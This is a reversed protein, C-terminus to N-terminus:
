RILTVTGKKSVKKGSLGDMELFYVYVGTPQPNGNLTGDWTGDQKTTSFVLQGWRNFISLRRLKNKNLAPIKLVDNLMDGNPTFASPFYVPFDCQDYVFVTDTKSGCKNDVKITYNGPSTVTYVPNNTEIGNWSYNDYGETAKLQVFSSGSLCTDSSAMLHAPSKLIKVDYYVISDCGWQTKLSVYYRGSDNVLTNDPLKYTEDECLSIDHPHLSDIVDKCCEYEYQCDVQQTLVRPKVKFKFSSYRFDVNLPQRLLYVKNVFWPWPMEETVLAAPLETCPINGAANTINLNFNVSEPESQFIFYRDENQRKVLFGRSYGNSNVFSKSWLINNDADIKYLIMQNNSLDKSLLLQEGNNGVSVANELTSSSNAPHFAILKLFYGANSTIFNVSSRKFLKHRYFIENDDPIYMDACFSLNGNPLEQINKIQPVFEPPGNTNTLPPCQFSTEQMLKGDNGNIQILHFYYLPAPLIIPPMFPYQLTDALSRVVEKAVVINGNSLEKIVPKASQIETYILASSQISVGWFIDGAMNVCLVKSIYPEFFSALYVVINGNKLQYLSTITYDTRWNGFYKGGIIHGFKDLHVFVGVRHQPPDEQNNVSKGHETTYGYVFSTSDLGPAVGTMLTNSYWPFQVWSDHPYDPTYENSWIVSGQSTFKSVFNSFASLQSLSVIENVSPSTAEIIYSKDEGKYTISYYNSDKICEQSITKYKLCILVSFIIINKANKYVM